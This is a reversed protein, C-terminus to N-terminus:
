HQIQVSASMTRKSYLIAERTYKLAQIISETDEFGYSLRLQRKGAAASKGSPHVCFEGPLYIVRPLLHEASGDIEPNGTNRSLFKFFDSNTDTYVNRFSLYYYFGGQGGRRDELWPGLLEDIAAGIVQAKSRYGENVRQLQESIHHELVYAAIEQNILPASFGVDNTKQIIADLLAGEAGMIFGIRLAPALVKSLTGIEYALGQTNNKLVSEPREVQPDHILWEYAQDFFIPLPRELRESWCEAISVLESKCTNSMIVGSPNNVSVFYFFSLKRVDEGLAALQLELKAASVGDREEPVTIVRFGKRELYNCYIYYMPDATIVIGPSFLDALADLISTAGNAGIVIKQKDMSVQEFGGIKHKVYFSRLARILNPSGQSGGYNFAQRYIEPHNVVENMAELFWQDPITKENVYGVGINIDIGDRFDTSFASMMRNVPSPTTCAMGYRSLLYNM